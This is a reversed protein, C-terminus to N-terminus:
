YERCGLVAVHRLVLASVDVDSGLVFEVEVLEVSDRM